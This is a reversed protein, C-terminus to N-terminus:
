LENSGVKFIEGELALSTNEFELQAEDALVNLDEYRSSYHGIVLKGVKSKAAMKGAQKATTHMTKVALDRKEDLFTAEHYLLDVGRIHEVLEEHYQTDSCYAYSRQPYKQFALEKNPLITGSELQIDQGAKILKIQEVSLQYKKIQESIINLQHKKERFLYGSTPIRHQLPFSFVELNKNEFILKGKDPIFEVINLDFTIYAKTVEIIHTLYSKIGIPGFISLSETRGQLQFSNILGPLGFIHDGHLHSIFIASIKSKKIRFESM